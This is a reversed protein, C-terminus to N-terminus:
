CHDSCPLKSEIQIGHGFVDSYYSMDCLEYLQMSENLSFHETVISDTFHDYIFYYGTNYDM